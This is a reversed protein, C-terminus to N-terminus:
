IRVRVRVRVRVKVRVRVRARVERLPRGGEHALEHPDRAIQGVRHEVQLPGGVGSLEGRYRGWMEGVDGRYRGWM